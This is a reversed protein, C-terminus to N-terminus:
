YIDLDPHVHIKSGHFYLRLWVCGMPKPPMGSEVAWGEAGTDYDDKYTPVSIHIQNSRGLAGKPGCKERTVALAWAEHIHGSVIIDADPFVVARRNTQIVGKTVPGGGGSGHFYKLNLNHKVTKQVIFFLKVYGGYGGRFPWDAGGSERLRRTLRYTLDSGAHKIVAAEHNGIGMVAFLNAYPKYFKEADDVLVDFYNEDKAHEPRSERKSRRRDERGQMADFLDGVDIIPANRELAQDLHMKELKQDTKPSDHHRDATLLIYQEWGNSVNDFIIRHVNSRLQEVRWDNTM